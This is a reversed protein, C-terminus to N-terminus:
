NKFSVFHIVSFTAAKATFALKFTFFKNLAWPAISINTFVTYIDAIAKQIKIDPLPLEVAEMDSFEFFEHASGKSMYRAYRDFESRNFYIYLYEPLLKDKAEEKIFFAINNFSFLLSSSTNNFGLGVKDGMRTTRPNYVFENPEVIYFKHIVSDDVDAKTQTIEKQNSIGRVYSIDFELSTNKKFSEQILEGLKCKNLAM